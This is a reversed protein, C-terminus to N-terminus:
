IGWGWFTKHLINFLLKMSTCPKLHTFQHNSFLKMDNGNKEEFVVTDNSDFCLIWKKYITHRIMFCRLTVNLWLSISMASSLMIFTICWVVLGLSMYVTLHNFSWAFHPFFPSLHPSFFFCVEYNAKYMYIDFFKFNFINILIFMHKIIGSSTKM